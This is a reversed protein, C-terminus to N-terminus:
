SPAGNLWANRQNVHHCRVLRVTMTPLTVLHFFCNSEFVSMDCVFVRLESLPFVQKPM